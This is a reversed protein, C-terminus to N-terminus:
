VRQRGAAAVCRKLSKSVDSYQFQKLPIHIPSHGARSGKKKKKKKLFILNCSPLLPPKYYRYPAFGNVRCHIRFNHEDNLLKKGYSTKECITGKKIIWIEKGSENKNVNTKMQRNEAWLSHTEVCQSLWILLRM